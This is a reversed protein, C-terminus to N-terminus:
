IELFRFISNIKIFYVIIGHTSEDIRRRSLNIIRKKEKVIKKVNEWSRLDNKFKVSNMCCISFIFILKRYFLVSTFSVIHFINLVFFISNNMTVSNYISLTARVGSLEGLYMQFNMSDNLM